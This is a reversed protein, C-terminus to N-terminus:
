LYVCMRLYSSVNLVVVACKKFAEYKLYLKSSSKNFSSIVKEQDPILEDGDAAM